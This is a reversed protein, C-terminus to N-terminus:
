ALGAKCIISGYPRQGPGRRGEIKGEIMIRLIRFKEKYLIYGFYALENTMSFDQNRFGHHLDVEYFFFSFLISLFKIKLLLDDGWACLIEM